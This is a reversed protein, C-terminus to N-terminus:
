IKEAREPIVAFHYENLTKCKPCNVELKLDVKSGRLYGTVVAKALFFKCRRCKFRLFPSEESWLRM